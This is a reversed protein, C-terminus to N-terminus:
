PLLSASNALGDGFLTLSPSIRKLFDQARAGFDLVVPEEPQARRSPPKTFARWSAPQESDKPMFFIPTALLSRGLSSRFGFVWGSSKASSAGWALVAWFCGSGAWPSLTVALACFGPLRRRSGRLLAKRPLDLDHRFGFVATGRKKPAPDPQKQVVTEPAPKPEPAVVPAAPPVVVPAVSAEDPKSVLLEPHHIKLWRLATPYGTVARTALKAPTIPIPPNAGAMAQYAALIRADAVGAVGSGSRLLASEELASVKSGKFFPQPTQSDFLDALGPLAQWPDAAPKTRPTKARAAAHM